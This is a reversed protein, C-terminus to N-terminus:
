RPRPPWSRRRTRTTVADQVAPRRLAARGRDAAADEATGPMAEHCLTCLKVTDTPIPLKGNHPHGQAAGHCMECTVSKHSGASWQAHREDHCDACYAAGQFVPEKSAIQPVANARFHGFRYFSDPVLFYRVVLALVLAVGLLTLLRAIHKPM